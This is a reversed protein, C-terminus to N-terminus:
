RSMGLFRESKRIPFRLIFSSGKGPESKVKIDAHHADMMAKVYSLGLGFGKVDHVDGTHVRYFKDFIHKLSEKDMGLGRDSVTVEICNKVDRTCIKIEPSDPSYKNANDLLNNIINSIHTQDGFIQTQTAQLDLEVTGGRKEASLSINQAAQRIIEHMDLETKSLSIDQKDVAAIQLVKEVQANMRRNEQRIIDAFRRVKDPQGSIRPSSISDAALSITAIPTKFEHTMNNIFDTKMESVKKQLFIVNIVYAFCFLIIGTFLISGLLPLWVTSWVVSSRSPFWVMLLGPSRGTANNSFLNVRYLSTYLNQYGDINKQAENDEDIYSNNALVYNKRRKSFVGYNYDIDIGRDSLEEKLAMDLYDLKIRNAIPTNDMGKRYNMYSDLKRSREATCRSCNCDKEGTDIDEVLMSLLDNISLPVDSTRQEMYFSFDTGGASVQRRYEKQFYSKVYGNNLFNYALLQDEYELRESVKNLANFVSVDFQRENLRISSRIWSIQLIIIGVLAAAMLAIILNISKKNM